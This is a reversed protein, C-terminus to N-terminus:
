AHKTSNRRGLGVTGDGGVWVRMEVGVRVEAGMGLKVGVRVGVSHHTPPHCIWMISNRWGLGWGLGM